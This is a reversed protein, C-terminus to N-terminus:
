ASTADTDNAVWTALPSRRHTYTFLIGPHNIHCLDADVTTAAEGYLSSMSQIRM